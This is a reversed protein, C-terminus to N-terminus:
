GWDDAKAGDEAMPSSRRTEKKRTKRENQEKSKKVNRERRQGAHGVAGKGGGGREKTVRARRAEGRKQSQDRGSQSGRWVFVGERRLSM